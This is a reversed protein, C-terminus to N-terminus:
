RHTKAFAIRGVLRQDVALALLVVSSTRKTRLACQTLGAAVFCQRRRDGRANSLSTRRHIAGFSTVTIRSTKMAAVVTALTAESIKNKDHEADSQEKREVCKDSSKIVKMTKIGVKGKFKNDAYAVSEDFAKKKEKKRVKLQEEDGREAQM